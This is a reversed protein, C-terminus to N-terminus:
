NYQYYLELSIKNCGAMWGVRNMEKSQTGANHNASAQQGISSILSSPM